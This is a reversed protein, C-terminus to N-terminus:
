TMVVQIGGLRAQELIADFDNPFQGTEKRHAFATHMSQHDGGAFVLALTHPEQEELVKFLGQSVLETSAAETPLEVILLGAAQALRQSVQHAASPVTEATLCNVGSRSLARLVRSGAVVTCGRQELRVASAASGADSTAAPAMSSQTSGSAGSGGGLAVSRRVVAKIINYHQDNSQEILEPRQRVHKALRLCALADEVSNHGDAANQIEYRLHKKTLMSLKQKYRGERALLVATDIVHPHSRQLVGLDNELSHGVLIDHPRLLQALRHQIDALRSTANALLEPTIGSFRTVYDTVPEDPVVFEDMVTVEDQDVVSIRALAYRSGCRVMECDVAFLRPEADTPPVNKPDATAPATAPPPASAKDGKADDNIDNVPGDKEEQGDDHDHDDDSDIDIADANAPVPTTSTESPPTGNGTASNTLAPCEPASPYHHDQQMQPKLCLAYWGLQSVSDEQDVLDVATIRKADQITCLMRLPPEVNRRGAPARIRAMTADPWRAQVRPVIETVFDHQKLNALSIVAVKKITTRNKFRVATPKEHSLFLAHALLGQLQKYKLHADADCVLEVKPAKEKKAKKRPPGPGHGDGEGKRAAEDQPPPPQSAPSAM